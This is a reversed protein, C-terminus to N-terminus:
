KVIEATLLSQYRELLDAMTVETDEPVTITMTSGDAFILLYDFYKKEMEKMARVEADGAYKGIHSM